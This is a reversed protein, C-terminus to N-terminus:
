LIEVTGRQGDIRVRQGNRFKGTAQAIDMVAPIGYERALIAGHSLSGGVEAIIGGCQALLPSWGSDTFPVVLITEKTIALDSRLSKMILIEGEQIGGSAGIGQFLRRHDVPCVLPFDSPAPPNGYIVSPLNELTQDAERQSRRKFIKQSIGEPDLTEPQTVLAQVEEWTFEFIDAEQTFIGQHHWIKGLALFSWRLEALLQSYLRSVVGKLHLRSQVPQRLWHHWPSRKQALPPRDSPPNQILGLFANRTFAGDERWRPVSIDTAVEGLYGYREIWEQFAQLLAEGEPIEAWRQFWQPDEGTVGPEVRPLDQAKKALTALSRWSEIEPSESYDLETEPPSLLARRLAFSLPALISYYTMTELAALIERIRELLAEPSLEWLNEAELRVMSPALQSRWDRQFSKELAWEQGVLRVLGPLNMLTSKLPPRSFKEGRTLFELSEPPLGLGLFIEGLLSANFYARHYHLTALTSFDLHHAKKGLGLRFLREWVGCTLPRNISWTLPPILGPIVEAAIKRTWIPQMTSIPRSQLLWLQDGDYSWEIDQPIGNNLTELERAIRGIETLLVPSIEGGLHVLTVEGQAWALRYQEPTARGSAIAEPSGPLAEVVIDDSLFNLPDRSFAVGSIVGRVEEQIIVAIGLETQQHEQRYHVAHGHHYSQFCDIVAQKLAAGDTVQGVTLYQGAASATASDEDLASSRVIFPRDSRPSFAAVVQDLDDGPLVVWAPPVGYGWHKLRSLNAAKPGVVTPSLEQDISLFGQRAQFFRFVGVSDQHAAESTLDLDDPIKQYIGFLMGCLAIAMLVYPGDSPNRLTLLTGLLLLVFYKGSRRRRVLTFGLGGILLVLLATIPDHVGIGWVVNTTGAGQAALYRGWVLAMLAILAWVPDTPFFYQALWVVGMGKFAEAVVALLGVGKGGHYFAASVSLNGTGLQKLQKGTLGYTIWDILPLAGLLPSLTLLLLGGWVQTMTMAIPQPLPDFFSHESRLRPDKFPPRDSRTEGCFDIIARSFQPDLFGGRAM